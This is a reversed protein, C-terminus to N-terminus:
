QAWSPKGFPSGSAESNKFESVNKGSKEYAKIHAERASKLGEMFDKAKAKFNEYTDSTQPLRSELRALEQNSAGAGTILKRYADSMRGVKSRFAVEDSNVFPSWDPEKSDVVGTWDSNDGLTSLASSAQDIAADFEAIGEVQKPNLVAAAEKKEQSKEARVDEREKRSEDRVRDAILRTEQLNARSADLADKRIQAQLMYQYKKELAPSFDKFKAATLNKAQLPNLGMQVALDQAIKSEDSNPDRERALKAQDSEFKLLDQGSKVDERQALRGKDFQELSRSKEDAMNKLVAQGAATGDKDQLSAGFTALGAGVRGLINPRNSEEILKERSADSYKDGFYKQRIQDLVQDRYPNSEAAVPDVPAEFPKDTQEIQAVVEEDSLDPYLKKMEDFYLDPM